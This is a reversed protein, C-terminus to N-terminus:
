YRHASVCKTSGPYSVQLTADGIASGALSLTQLNQHAGLSSCLAKWIAAPLSQSEVLMKFGQSDFFCISSLQNSHLVSQTVLLLAHQRSKCNFALAYPPLVLVSLM